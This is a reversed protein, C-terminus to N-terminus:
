QCGDIIDGTHVVLDPQETAILWSLFSTSNSEDCPLQSLLIDDCFPSPIEYHVDSIHLLKFTGLVRYLSQHLAVILHLLSNGDAKFVLKASILPFLLCFLSLFM